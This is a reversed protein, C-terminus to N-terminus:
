KDEATEADLSEVTLFDRTNFVAVEKKKPKYYHITKIRSTSPLSAISGRRTPRKQSSFNNIVFNSPKGGSRTAARYPTELVYKDSKLEIALVEKTSSKRPTEDTNYFQFVHKLGLGPNQRYNDQSSFNVVRCSSNHNNCHNSKPSNTYSENSKHTKRPAEISKKSTYQLSIFDLNEHRKDLKFRMLSSGEAQKVSHNTMYFDNARTNKGSTEQYQSQKYRIKRPNKKRKKGYMKNYREEFRKDLESQDMMLVFNGPLLNEDHQETSKQPTSDILTSEVKPRSTPTPRHTHKQQPPPPPPTYLPKPQLSDYRSEYSLVSTKASKPSDESKTANLINISYASEFKQSPSEENNTQVDIEAGEAPITSTKGVISESQISLEKIEIPPPAIIYSIKPPEKAEVVNSSILSSKEDSTIHLSQKSSSSLATTQQSHKTEVLKKPSTVIISEQPQKIEVIKLPSTNTITKQSKKTEAQKQSYTVITSEYSRKIEVKKIPSTNTITQQSQKTEVQKQRMLKPSLEKEQPAQKPSVIENSLTVEQSKPAPNSEITSFITEEFKKSSESSIDGEKAKEDQKHVSSEVSQQTQEVINTSIPISKSEAMSSNSLNSVTSDRISASFSDSIVGKVEEKDVEPKENEDMRQRIVDSKKKNYKRPASSKKSTKPEKTKKNTVGRKEEKKRKEVGYEADVIAPKGRFKIFSGQQDDYDTERLMDNIISQREADTLENINKDALYPVYEPPRRYREFYKVQKNENQILQEGETLDIAKEEKRIELKRLKYAENSLYDLQDDCFDFQDVKIYEMNPFLYSGKVLMIETDTALFVDRKGGSICIHKIPIPFHVKRLKLCDYDWLIVSGDNSCSGWVDVGFGFGNVEETHAFTRFGGNIYNFRKNSVRIQVINGDSYGLVLLGSCFGYTTEGDKKLSDLVACNHTMMDLLMIETQTFVLLVRHDHYYYMHTVVLRSCYIRNIVVKTFPDILEITSNKLSYAYCWKSKYYVQCMFVAEKKFIETEVSPSLTSNFFTTLGNNGLLLLSDESQESKYCELYIYNENINTYCGRDYILCYPHSVNSPSAWNLLEGDRPSYVRIFCNETLVVIQGAKGIRDFRAMLKIDLINLQWATWPINVKYFWVINSFTIFLMKKSSDYIIRQPRFELTSCYMSRGTKINLILINHRTNVYILNEDDIWTFTLISSSQIPYSRLPEGDDKWLTFGEEIESVMLLKNNENFSYISNMNIPLKSSYHKADGNLSFARVGKKCPLYLLETDVDFSPRNLLSFEFYDFFFCYKSFVIESVDKFSNVKSFVWRLKWVKIGCGICVLLRSKPAYIMHLVGNHQSSLEFISDREEWSVPIKYTRNLLNCAFFQALPATLGIITDIEPIVCTCINPIDFTRDIVHDKIIDIKKSSSVIVRDGWRQVTNIKGSHLELKLEDSIGFRINSEDM